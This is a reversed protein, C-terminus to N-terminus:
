RNRSSPCRSKTQVPLRETEALLALAAQVIKQPQIARQQGHHPTTCIGRECAKCTTDFYLVRHDVLWPTHQPNTTAYLDVVPTGLAAAIHVPGSNNTILLPAAEVLAIFEALTLEGALNVAAEGIAGAVQAAM